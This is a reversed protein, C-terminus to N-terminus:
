RWSKKTRGTIDGFKGDKEMAAMFKDTKMHADFYQQAEERTKGTFTHTVVPYPTDGEYIEHVLEVMKTTEHLARRQANNFIM